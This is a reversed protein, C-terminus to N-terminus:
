EIGKPLVEVDYSTEITRGLKEDTMTLRYSDAYIFSDPITGWCGSLFITGDQYLGRETLVDTWDEPALLDAMTGEMYLTDTGDKTVVMRVKIEGFHDKVEDYDWVEGAVVNPVIAKAKPVDHAELDRDSHDSCITVYRKGGHFIIAYELEGSTEANVVQIEADTTVMYNPIPYLTPTTSPAPVGLEALEAIHARVSEQNRGAYGANVAYKVDVTIPDAGAVAFSLKPM